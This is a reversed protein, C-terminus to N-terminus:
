QLITNLSRLKIAGFLPYDGGPQDPRIDVLVFNKPSSSALANLTEREANSLARPDYNSVLVRGITSKTLEYTGDEDVRRWRYGKEQADILDGASPPAPLRARVSEEFSLTGVFLKRVPDSNLWALHLARRRFEEYEKPRTPSNLIFRQFTGDRRKIEIGSAMLRMVMDLPAGQIILFEFKSEDMPTLVRKTFEEGQIPVISLTPNEAVSAGLNLGYSNLEPSKFFLGTFGAQARYDFTAAISSTVTFHGPLDNHKRAINLLLMERDIRSISEDYGLVAEHLATPGICGTLTVMWALCVLAVSRM